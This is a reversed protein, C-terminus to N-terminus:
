YVDGNENIAVREHHTFFMRNDLVQCFHYKKLHSKTAPPLHKYRGDWDEIVAPLSIGLEHAVQCRSLGYMVFHRKGNWQICAPNVIGHKQASEYLPEWVRPKEKMDARWWHCYDEMHHPDFAEAYRLQIAM